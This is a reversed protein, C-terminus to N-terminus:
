RWSIGPPCYVFKRAWASDIPKALHMQFGAGLARKRDEGGAQATLAAAPTQGGRERPLSRLKHIFTYGDERTMAIDCLIM